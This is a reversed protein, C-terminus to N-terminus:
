GAVDATVGKEEPQPEVIRTKQVIDQATVFMREHDAMDPRVKAFKVLDALELMEGTEKWVTEAHRHQRLASMIEDTTQELATIGYRNEFYRRVIETVESYYQKILGQQWLNKEKLLALEELAIVHAPRPPPVYVQGLKKLTRKKWYRYLFYGAAVLALVIGVYLMIEWFTLSIWLPPKIDKIGLSTDVQVTRVTLILPNTVAVQSATDRLTRYLIPISPLVASGSDYKAVVLRGTTETDSRRELSDRAIVTFPGLTDGVLTRLATGKPHTIDLHVSIWDGVLYTTSDVSAQASVGQGSARAPLLMPLLALVCWFRMGMEKVV